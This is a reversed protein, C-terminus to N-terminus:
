VLLCACVYACRDISTNCLFVTFQPIFIIIIVLTQTQATINLM